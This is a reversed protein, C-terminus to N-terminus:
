DDLAEIEPEAFSDPTLNHRVFNCWKCDSKGCGEYFEHNQIKVYTEKVLKRVFEVDQPKIEIASNVFQGKNNPDVWSILGSTVRRAGRDFSEYLLKYFVLQRWYNGGLPNSESPPRLKVPEIEGTKYDVVVTKFDEHLELKDIAGTLPVGEVQVNRVNLEIRVKKHWSNVNQQYFGALHRRGMELRRDYEHRSFNGRLRQMEEEFFQVLSHEVPFRRDPVALMKEFLRRLAHHVATGYSASESETIPAQMINEYYFGLPCKLYQNLASISLRFNELLQSVMARDQTPLTLRPQATLQLLQYDLLIAEPVETAEVKLHESQLIEDIFIARQLDKGNNDQRSYSIQLCEQARTMAVYFLRRRAELADEEGSFTLTDPMSFRYSSSRAAPEWGDKVCDLLFVRQFELGKASHATVLNVGKEAATIKNLEIPLRNADMSRLIDLLQRLSLRPHRETEAQVFDFLTKVVQLLWNKDPHEVIMKLLGSRNIIKELLAPLSTGTADTLLEEMLASWQQISAPNELNLKALVAQDQLVERWCPRNEPLFANIYVSLRAIDVPIINLFNFHLIRFLWHEGSHPRTMEDQLYELIERLNRILAVDLINVRRKTNYPIGKKELLSILNQVQRHRAYIVAIEELPFGEAQWREIQQVIAAEEQIRNPYAVIRPSLDIRAFQPHNAQLIKKIGLQSLSNVIRIVNNYILTKSADLILQSSRYNQRLLVLKLDQQYAEYFDSLNKLRAGQFEYISQDDDGVIFINPNDWYEVLKKLINNQAGNTDQYEDVLFYLYREQYNRLLAENQEFARLVWLMMDNYDYRRADGMAQQFQPYLAAAAKLREMREVTEALKAQKLEGKKFAGRTVQYLFDKRNPLDKIYLDIQNHVYEPTWDEMKMRQFLEYLHSEYFYSDSQGRKLPHAVDLGDIIKRIIEIRELDSVPELEHRGFLELNDQIISNCFSHFTFIHVRYAEPGILQLLRQRMARVGSDTFTLCLINQPQTDTELLIRGIRAALIHTKGTGPGAIVLVPGEIHDVAERQEANLRELELLFAENHQQLVQM